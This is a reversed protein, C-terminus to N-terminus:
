NQLKKKTEKTAKIHIYINITQRLIEIEDERTERERERGTDETHKPHHDYHYTGYLPPIVAISLVEVLTTSLSANNFSGLTPPTKYQRTRTEHLKQLERHIEIM